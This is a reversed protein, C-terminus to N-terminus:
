PRAHAEYLQILARTCDDWTPLDIKRPIFPEDFQQLVARALERPTGTLPFAQALGDEALERLGAVEAVLAPTGLAAAELVAIPHTEYESLLVVVRAAALLGALRERESMPVFEITVSDAVGLKRALEWLAGEYPGAGAIFLQAEPRQVLIHPLAEIIRHHGKFRELRGISVITPPTIPGSQVQPRPLLDSGNPIVAVRDRPLDMEQVLQEREFRALAIVRAARRLLPRLLRWQLPRLPKRLPPAHGKGHPTVVFPIAARSAALMALPAVPTHWSQIHVLDWRDRAVFGYV